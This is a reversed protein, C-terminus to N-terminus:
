AAMRGGADVPSRAIADLSVAAVDPPLPQLRVSRRHFGLREIPQDITRFGAATNATNRRPANGKIADRDKKARSNRRESPLPPYAPPSTVDSRLVEVSYNTM